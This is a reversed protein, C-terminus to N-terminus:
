LTQQRDKVEDLQITGDGSVDYELIMDAAQKATFDFGLTKFAALVEDADLEGSGDVDFDNFVQQFRKRCRRAEAVPAQM